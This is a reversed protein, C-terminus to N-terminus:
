GPDGVKRLATQLALTSCVAFRCLFRAMATLFSYAPTFSRSSRLRMPSVWLVKGRPEVDRQGIEVLHFVVVARDAGRNDERKGGFETEVHRLQARSVAFTQDGVHAFSEAIRDKGACRRGQGVQPQGGGVGRGQRAGKQFQVLLVALRM